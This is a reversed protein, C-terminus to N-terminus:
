DVCSGEDPIPKNLRIDESFLKNVRDIPGDCSVFGLFLCACWRALEGTPLLHSLLPGCVSQLIQDYAAKQIQVNDLLPRGVAM